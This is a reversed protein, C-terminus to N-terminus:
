LVGKPSFIVSREEESRLVPLELVDAVMQEEMAVSEPYEKMLSALPNHSERIIWKGPSDGEALSSMREERDRIKAFAKARDIIKEDPTKGLM